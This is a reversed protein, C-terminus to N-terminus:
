RMTKAAMYLGGIWMIPVVYPSVTASLGTIKGDATQNTIIASVIVTMFTLLILGIAVKGGAAGKKKLVFATKLGNLLIKINEM